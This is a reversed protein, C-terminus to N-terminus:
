RLRSSRCAPERRLATLGILLETVGPLLALGGSRAIAATTIVFRDADRVLFVLGCKNLSTSTCRCLSRRIVRLAM